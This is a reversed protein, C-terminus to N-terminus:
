KFSYPKWKYVEDAMTELRKTLLFSINVVTLIIFM